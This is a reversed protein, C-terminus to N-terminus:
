KARQKLTDLGRDRQAKLIEVQEPLAVAECCLRVASRGKEEGQRESLFM